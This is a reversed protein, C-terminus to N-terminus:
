LHVHVPRNQPCCGVLWCCCCCCCCCNRKEEPKESASRVHQGKCGAGSDDMITIPSIAMKRAHVIVSTDVRIKRTATTCVKFM